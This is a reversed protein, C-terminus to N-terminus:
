IPFLCNSGGGQFFNSGGGPFHQVGEPVKFFSLNRQFQGGSKKLILRPSFFVVVFFFCRQWLKKQWVSRSGGGRVFNGSDACAYNWVRHKIAAVARALSRTHASEDSWERSMSPILVLMESMIRLRTEFILSTFSSYDRFFKIFKQIGRYYCFHRWEVFNHRM